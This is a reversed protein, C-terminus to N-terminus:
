ADRLVLWLDGVNTGTPGTVIQEGLEAFFSGSDNADLAAAADLGARRGRGITGGDVVAGAARTVGDIGDTGAALFWTGAIGDLLTAAVLAAEQNRGGQGRGKVDVTTEGAFVSLGRGSRRLVEGAMAGADGTMRTDVVTTPLGLREGAVAAAHAAAAAGAVVRYEGSVGPHPAVPTRLAAQVSAPLAAAVGLQEVVRLAADADDDAAVTPGSAIVEPMDGVVDSLALTIVRAPHAAAALGGGKLLSVRRRVTNTAVIDAGSRLLLQNTVALDDRSVGPLPAVALASGGGSILVLATDDPGLTTALELLAVGAHHSRADPVPHGGIILALGPPITDQHDSVVLGELQSRGLAAAAGRAMGPAAKGLALVVVRGSIPELNRLVATEPDVAALGAEFCAM